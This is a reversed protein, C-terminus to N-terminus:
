DGKIQSDTIQSLSCLSKCCTSIKTPLCNDSSNKQRKLSYINHVFIRNTASFWRWHRITRIGNYYLLNQYSFIQEWLFETPLRPKQQILIITIVRSSQLASGLFQEHNLIQCWLYHSPPCPTRFCRKRGRVGAKRGKVGSEEGKHGSRGMLIDGGGGWKILYNLLKVKVNDRKEKGQDKIREGAEWGGTGVGHFLKLKLM